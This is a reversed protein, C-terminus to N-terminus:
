LSAAVPVSSTTIAITPVTTYPTLEALYQRMKWLRQVKSGAATM